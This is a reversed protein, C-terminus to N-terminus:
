HKSPFYIQYLRRIMIFINLIFIYFGLYIFLGIIWSIHEQFEIAPLSFTLILVLVSILIEYMGVAIADKNRFELRVDAIDREAKPVARSAESSSMTMFTLVMATLISLVVCIVDTKSSTLPNALQTGIALFLPFLIFFCFDPKHRSFVAYYNKFVQAVNLYPFLEKKQIYYLLIVFALIIWFFPNVVLNKLISIVTM